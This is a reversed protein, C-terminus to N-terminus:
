IKKDGWFKIGDMVDKEVDDYIYGNDDCYFM